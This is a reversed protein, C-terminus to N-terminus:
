GRRKTPLRRIANFTVEPITPETKVAPVAADDKKGCASLMLALLGVILILKKTM